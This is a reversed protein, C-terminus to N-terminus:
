CQTVSMLDKTYLYKTAGGGKAGTYQIADATKRHVDHATVM